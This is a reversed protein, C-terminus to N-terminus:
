CHTLPVITQLSGRLGSNRWVSNWIFDTGKPLAASSEEGISQREGAPRVRQLVTGPVPCPLLRKEAQGEGTM